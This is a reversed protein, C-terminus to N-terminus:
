ESHVAGFLDLFVKIGSELTSIYQLFSSPITKKIKLNLTFVPCVAQKENHIGLGCAMEVSSTKLEYKIPLFVAVSNQM